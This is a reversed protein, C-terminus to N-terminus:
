ETALNNARRASQGPPYPVPPSCSRGSLTVGRSKRSSEGSTMPKEQSVHASLEGSESTGDGARTGTTIHRIRATSTPGVPDGTLESPLLSVTKKDPSEIKSRKRISTNM